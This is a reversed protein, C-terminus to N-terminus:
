SRERQGQRTIGSGSNGDSSSSSTTKTPCAPHRGQTDMFGRWQRIVREYGRETDDAPSDPRLDNESFPEYPDGELERFTEDYQELPDITQDFKDAFAQPTEDTM